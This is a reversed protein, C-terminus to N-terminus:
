VRIKSVVAINSLPLCRGCLSPRGVYLDFVEPLAGAPTVAQRLSKLKIHLTRTM